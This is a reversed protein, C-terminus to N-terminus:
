FTSKKGGRGREVNETEDNQEMREMKTVELLLLEARLSALDAQRRKIIMLENVTCADEKERIVVRSRANAEMLQIEEICRQIAARLLEERSVKGWVVPATVRDCCARMASDCM